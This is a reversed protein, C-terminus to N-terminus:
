LTVWRNGRRWFMGEAVEGVRFGALCRVQTKSASVHRPLVFLGFTGAMVDSMNTMNTINVTNILNTINTWKGM